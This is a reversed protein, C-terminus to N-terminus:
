INYIYFLLILEGFSLETLAIMDLKPLNYAIGFYNAYFPLVKVAV